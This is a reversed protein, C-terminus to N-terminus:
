VRKKYCEPFKDFRPLFKKHKIVYLIVGLAFTDLMTQQPLPNPPPGTGLVEPAVFGPTGTPGVPENVFGFDIIVPNYKMNGETEKIDVMINSPKLDRHYIGRHHLFNVAKLLRKFFHIWQLESVAHKNYFLLDHLTLTYCQTVLVQENQFLKVETMIPKIISGQEEKFDEQNKASHIYKLCDIEKRLSGSVGGKGRAELNHPIKVCLAGRIGKAESAKYVSGFTGSGLQAGLTLRQRKMDIKVHYEFQKAM